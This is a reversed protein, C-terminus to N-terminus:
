IAATSSAPPTPPSPLPQWYTPKVERGDCIWAGARKPDAHRLEARFLPEWYIVEICSAPDLAPAPVFGLLCILNIDPGHKSDTFTSKPANEIPQWESRGSAAVSEPKAIPCNGRACHVNASPDGGRWITRECEDCVEHTGPTRRDGALATVGEQLAMEPECKCGLPKDCPEYGPAKCYSPRTNTRQWDDKHAAEAATTCPSKLARCAEELAVGANFLSKDGHYDGDSQYIKALKTLHDLRDPSIAPAMGRVDQAPTKPLILAYIADTMAGMEDEGNHDELAKQMVAGIQDRTVEGVGPSLATADQALKMKDFGLYPDSSM